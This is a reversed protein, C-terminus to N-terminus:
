RRHLPPYILKIRLVLSPEPFGEPLPRFPATAKFAAVSNQGLSEHGKEDLVDLRLMRGDPAIELEVVTYGDILGLYYAYPAVWNRVFDRRFRQLWPAWAWELTNLSIDGFLATNGGPNHMEEQFIDQMGKDPHLLRPTRGQERLLDQTLDRASKRRELEGQPNGKLSSEREDKGNKQDVSAPLNQKGGVTPTYREEPSEAEAEGKPNAEGASAALEGVSSPRMGVQRIESDGTMRPMAGKEGGSVQDRARSDVNSILDTQEPAQNEPDPPKDQRDSPLETFTKQKEPERQPAPPSTKAENQRFVMRIPEPEKAEVPKPEFPRLVVLLSLLSAHLFLTLLFAWLWVRAESGASENRERENAPRISL